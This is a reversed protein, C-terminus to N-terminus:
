QVIYVMTRIYLFAISKLALVLPSEVDMTSFMLNVTQIVSIHAGCTCDLSM